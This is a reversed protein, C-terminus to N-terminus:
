ATAEPPICLMGAVTFLLGIDFQYAMDVFCANFLYVGLLIPWVKRLSALPTGPDGLSSQQRVPTQRPSSSLCSLSRPRRSLQFLRFFLVTYLALGPIGFEVLLSLYTNHPFYAHLHYGQMRRALEPYMRSAKWGTFPRDQFMAWGAEYVSIRAAVPGREQTRERLTNFLDRSGLFAGVGFFLGALTLVFAARRLRRDGLRMVIAFVSIVFAIWVARTLTALVALPLLACLFFTIKKYKGAFVIALIGLLNLALGNAVAQLFPGRARDAHLGLSPDLIFRPVILSNAGVLFAIATLTLYALVALLFVQFHKRASASTFVLTAIHFLTFPVIFKDAVLSWTQVDFPDSFARVMALAVLGLMPWSIQPIFPLKQRRMLVRLAVAFVLLCFAIRDAHYFDVDPPRFLFTLLAALYLVSPHSLALQLPWLLPGVVPWPTQSPRRDREHDWTTVHGNM